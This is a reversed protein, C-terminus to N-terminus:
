TIETINLTSNGSGKIATITGSWNIIELTQSSALKYTWNTTSVGSGLKIYLVTSDPYYIVAKVRNPNAALITVPASPTVPVSTINSNTGSQNKVTLIAWPM